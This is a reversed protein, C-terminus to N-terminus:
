FTKVMRMKCVIGPSFHSIYISGENKRCKYLESWRGNNLIASISQLFDRNNNQLWINEVKGIYIGKTIVLAKKVHLYIRNGDRKADDSEIIYIGYKIREICEEVKDTGNKVVLNRMRVQPMSNDISSRCFGLTQYKNGKYLMEKDSMIGRFVGNKIITLPRTFTMEEDFIIGTKIGNGNPYDTVVLRLNSVRDGIKIDSNMVSEYVDAEALHGISEHFLQGAVKQSAICEIEISDDNCNQNMDVKEYREWEEYDTIKKQIESIFKQEQPMESYVLHGINRKKYIIELITYQFGRLEVVGNGFVIEEEYDEYLIDFSVDRMERKENKIKKLFCCIDKQSLYSKKGYFQINKELTKINRIEKVWEIIQEFNEVNELRYTFLIGNRNVYFDAINESSIYSKKKSMISLKQISKKYIKVYDKDNLLKCLMQLQKEMNREIM